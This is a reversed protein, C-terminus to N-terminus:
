QCASYILKGGCTRCVLRRNRRHATHTWCHNECRVRYRPPALELRHTREGSCGIERSKARWVADHNHKKGVLAHAIEHLITDKIDEDSNNRVLEFSISIMRDNYNCCGARRTSHDFKFRWDSLGHDQMAKLATTHISEIREQRQRALSEDIGLNRYPVSFEEKRVRVLARSPNTRIM